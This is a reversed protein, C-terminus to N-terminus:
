PTLSWLFQIELVIPEHMPANILFRPVFQLPLLSIHNHIMLTNVRVPMFVILHASELYLSLLHFIHPSPKRDQSNILTYIFIIIHMLKIFPKFFPTILFSLFPPRTPFTLPFSFIFDRLYIFVLFYM